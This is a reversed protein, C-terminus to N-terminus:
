LVEEILERFVPHHPRWVDLVKKAYVEVARSHDASNRASYIDDIEVSRSAQPMKLHPFEHGSRAAARLFDVIREDALDDEFHLLLASLHIYLSQRARRDEGISHQGCYADTLLRHSRFYDADSFERALINGYREWCAASPSMYAHVPGDFTGEYGCAPCIM